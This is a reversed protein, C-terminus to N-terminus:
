WQQCVERYFNYFDVLTQKAVLHGNEDPGLAQRIEDYTLRPTLAWIASLKLM